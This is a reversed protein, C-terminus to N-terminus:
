PVPIYITPRITRAERDREILERAERESFRTGLPVWWEFWAFHGVRQAQYHWGSDYGGGDVPWSEYSKKIRYTTM